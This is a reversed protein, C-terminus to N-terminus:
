LHSAVEQVASEARELIAKEAQEKLRTKFQASSVFFPKKVSISQIEKLEFEGLAELAKVEMVSYISQLYQASGSGRVSSSEFVSRLFSTGNSGVYATGLVQSGDALELRSRWSLSPVGQHSSVFAEGGQGDQPLRTVLHARLAQFGGSADSNFRCRVEVTGSFVGGSVSAPVAWEVASCNPRTIEAVSRIGTKPAFLGAIFALIQMIINIISIFDM